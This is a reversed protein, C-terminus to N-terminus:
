QENSWSLGSPDGPAAQASCINYGGSAHGHSVTLPKDPYPGLVVIKCSVDGGGQLQADIDYYMASGDFPVRLRLTGNLASPGQRSDNDSGYTIDIGAPASGGVIFEVTTPPQLSPTASPQAAVAPQTAGPAITATRDPAQKGTGGVAAGIIGIVFLVGIASLIGIFIKRVPHRKKRLPQQPPQYPNGGPFQPGTM